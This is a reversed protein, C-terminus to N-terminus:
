EKKEQDVKEISVADLFKEMEVPPLMRQAVTNNGQSQAKSCIVGRAFGLVDIWATASYNIKERDSPEGKLFRGWGDIVVTMIASYTLIQKDELEYVVRLQCGIAETDDKYKLVPKIGVKLEKDGILKESAEASIIFENEAYALFFVKSM